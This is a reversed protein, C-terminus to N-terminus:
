NGTSLASCAPGPTYGIDHNGMWLPQCGGGGCGALTNGVQPSFDWHTLKMQTVVLLFPVTEAPSGFLPTFISYDVSPQGMPFVGVQWQLGLPPGASFADGALRCVGDGKRGCYEVPCGSAVKPFFNLATLM